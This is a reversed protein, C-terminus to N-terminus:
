KALGLARMWVPAMPTEPEPAPEIVTATEEEPQSSSSPTELAMMRQELAALQSILQELQPNTSGTEPSTSPPTQVIITPQLNNEVEVPTVNEPEQVSEPVEVSVNLKQDSM